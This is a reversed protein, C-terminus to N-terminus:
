VREANRVEKKTEELNRQKTEYDELQKALRMDLKEMTKSLKQQNIISKIKSQETMIKKKEELLAKRVQDKNEMMKQRELLM